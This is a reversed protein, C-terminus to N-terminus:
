QNLKVLGKLNIYLDKLNEQGKIFEITGYGFLRENLIDKKFEKIINWKQGDISEYICARHKKRNEITTAIYMNGDRNITSYYAPGVISCVEKISENNRDYMYIYNNKYPCDTGWYLKGKNQLISLARWKQSGVGIPRLAKRKLDFFYIGSEEDGDGTGIILQDKNMKDIEIFHIHRINKFHFLVKSEGSIPDISYIYVTARKPNRWYDGYIVEDNYVIIGNRLPRSGRRINIINLLVNDRYVLIKKKIIVIMFGNDTKLINHIGRRTFRRFLAFKSLISEQEVEFCNLLEGKDNELIINRAQSIYYINNKYLHFANKNCIIM